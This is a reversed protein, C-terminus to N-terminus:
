PLFESKSKFVVSRSYFPSSSVMVQVCMGGKADVNMAGQIREVWRRATYFNVSTFSTSVRRLGGTDYTHLLLAGDDISEPM